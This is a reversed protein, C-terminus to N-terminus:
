LAAVRGASWVPQVQVDDVEPYLSEFYMFLKEAFAPPREEWEDQDDEEEEATKPVKAIILGRNILEPDLKTTTFPGPPIEFPVRVFKLLPRPMELVSEFAQM